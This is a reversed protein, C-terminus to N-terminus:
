TRSIRFSGTGSTRRLWLIGRGTRSKPTPSFSGSAVTNRIPTAGFTIIGNQRDKQRRVLGSFGPTSTKFDDLNGYIPHVNQYDSIDYGDDKLPSPFFPLLWLCTVGLDQLYDLKQVLGAFDGIGDNNSDYFARVHLEYILADKYWLPDAASGPKKM